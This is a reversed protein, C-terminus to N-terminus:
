VTSIPPSGLRSGGNKKWFFGSQRTSPPASKGYGGLLVLTCKSISSTTAIPLPPVSMGALAASSWTKPYATPM